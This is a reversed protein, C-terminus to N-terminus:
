YVEEPESGARELISSYGGFLRKTIGMKERVLQGILRPGLIEIDQQALGKPANLLTSLVSNKAM